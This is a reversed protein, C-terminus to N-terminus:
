DRQRLRRRCRLSLSHGAWRTSSCPSDTQSSQGSSSPSIKMGTTSRPMLGWSRSSGAASRRRVPAASWRQRAAVAHLRGPWRDLAVLPVRCSCRTAREWGPSTWSGTTPPPGRACCCRPGRSCVRPILSLEASQAIFASRWGNMSQVTDGPAFDAARSEVVTGVAPGWLPEGISYSPMPLDEGRLLEAMVATLQMATNRVLVEGNQLAPIETSALIFNDLHPKAQPRSKLLFHEAIM